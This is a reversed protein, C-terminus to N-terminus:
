FYKFLVYNEHLNLSLFKRTHTRLFESKVYEVQDPFLKFLEQYFSKTILEISEQIATIGGSIASGKFSQLNSITYLPTGISNSRTSMLLKVAKNAYDNKSKSTSLSRLEEKIKGRAGHALIVEIDKNSMGKHRYTEIISNIKNQTFEGKKGHLDYSNMNSLEAYPYNDREATACLLVLNANHDLPNIELAKEIVKIREVVNDIMEARTLLSKVTPLNNIEAGSNEGAGFFAMAAKTIQKTGCYNCFSIETSPDVQIEAGCVACKASEFTM